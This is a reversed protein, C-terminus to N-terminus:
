RSLSESVEKERYDPLLDYVADSFLQRYRQTNELTSEVLEPDYESIDDLDITLDVQERHAM